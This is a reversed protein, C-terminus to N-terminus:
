EGSVLPIVSRLLRFIFLSLVFIMGVLLLTNIFSLEPPLNPISFAFLGSIISVVYGLVQVIYIIGNVILEFLDAIWFAICDIGLFAGCESSPTFPPSTFTPAVPPWDDPATAAIEPYDESALVLIGLVVVIFAIIGAIMKYDSM